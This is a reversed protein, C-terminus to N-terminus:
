PNRRRLQPRQVMAPSQGLAGPSNATHKFLRLSGKTAWGASAIADPGGVDEAIIELIRYLNVWDLVEGAILRLVKAVAESKGAIALWEKVPDAPHIEEVTGDAHTIRVSAAMGRLHLVLPEPFAHIERGGDDRIRYVAGVQIAQSSDLVLRTAGNLLDAIAQAKNRVEQAAIGPDFASSTMFYSQGDHSINIDAAKLSEALASLDSSDGVLQVRWEM